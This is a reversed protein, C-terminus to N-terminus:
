AEYIYTHDKIALMSWAQNLSLVINMKVKHYFNFQNLAIAVTSMLGCRALMTLLINEALIIFDFCM